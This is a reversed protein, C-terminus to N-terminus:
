NLQRWTQMKTTLCDIHGAIGIGLIELIGVTISEMAPAVLRLMDQADVIFEHIACSAYGAAVTVALSLSSCPIRRAGERPEHIQEAAGGQNSAIRHAGPKRVSIYDAPNIANSPEM